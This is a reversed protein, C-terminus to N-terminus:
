RAALMQGGITLLCYFVGLGTDNAPETKQSIQEQEMGAVPASNAASPGSSACGCSMVALVMLFSISWEMPKMKGESELSLSFGSRGSLLGPCAEANDPQFPPTVSSNRLCNRARRPSHWSM